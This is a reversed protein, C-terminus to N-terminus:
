TLGSPGLPSGSGTAAARSMRSVNAGSPSSRRPSRRASRRRGCRRCSGRRRRGRGRRGPARPSGPRALLAEAPLAAVAGALARSAMVLPRSTVQVGRRGPPAVVEEVVQEAVLPLQRLARGTGVLPHALSASSSRGRRGVVARRLPRGVISVVSRASRRSGAYSFIERRKRSFGSSNAAPTRWPRTCAAAGRCPGPRASGRGTPRGLRLQPLVRHRGDVVLEDGVGVDGRELRLDQVGAQGDGLQDRRGPGRRGRKRPVSLRPPALPARMRRSGCRPQSTLSGSWSPSPARRELPHPLLEVARLGAACTESASRM